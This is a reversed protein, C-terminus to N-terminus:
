AEWPLFELLASEFFTGGGKSPLPAKFNRKAKIVTLIRLRIGQKNSVKLMLSKFQKMELFLDLNLRNNAFNSRFNSYNKGIKRFYAVGARLVKDFPPPM